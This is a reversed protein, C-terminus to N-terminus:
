YNQPQEKSNQMPMPTDVFCLLCVLMFFSSGIITSPIATALLLVILVSLKRKSYSFLPIIPMFFLILGPWGLWYGIEVILSHPSSFLTIQDTFQAGKAFIFYNHIHQTGYGIYPLQSLFHLYSRSRNSISHDATIGESAVNKLTLTKNFIREIAPTDFSYALILLCAIVSIAIAFVKALHKPRYNQRFFYPILIVFFFILASRSAGLLILLFCLLLSINLLKSSITQNFGIIIFTLLLVATSLNNPHYFTGSIFFHERYIEVIPFGFGFTHNLLQGLCIITQLALFIFILKSFFQKTNILNSSYVFVRLISLVLFPILILTSFIYSQFEYQSSGTTYVLAAYFSFPAFFLALDLPTRETKKINILEFYTIIGMILITPIYKIYGIQIAYDMFPYFFVWCILWLYPSDPHEKKLEKITTM